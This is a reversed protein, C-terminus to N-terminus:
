REASWWPAWLCGPCRPVPRAQGVRGRTHPKRSARALPTSQNSSSLCRVRPSSLWLSARPWDSTEAHGPMPVPAPSSTLRHRGAGPLPKHPEAGGLRKAGESGPGGGWPREPSPSLATHHPRASDQLTRSRGSSCGQSGPSPRPRPRPFPPHAQAQVWQPCSAAQPHGSDQPCHLVTALGPRPPAASLRPTQGSSFRGHGPRPLPSIRAGPPQPGPYCCCRQEQLGAGTRAGSPAARPRLPRPGPGAGVRGRPPSGM